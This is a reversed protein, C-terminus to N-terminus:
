PVWISGNWHGAASVETGNQTGEMIELQREVPICERECEPCCPHNCKRCFGLEGRAAINLAEGLAWFRNCHCCSVTDFHREQPADPDQIILCGEDRPTTLKRNLIQLSM